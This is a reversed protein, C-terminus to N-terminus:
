RMLLSVGLTSEVRTIPMFYDNSGGRAVSIGFAKTGNSWGGGSDGPVVTTRDTRALGGLIRGNSTVNTNIAEIKHFCYRSNSATGYVCVSKGVMSSESQKSEVWRFSNSSSYYFNAIEQGDTTHYMADGSSGFVQKRFTTSHTSGAAAGRRIIKNPKVNVQCHAASVIGNGNPGSVTWGTTCSTGSDGAHSQGGHASVLEAIPGDARIIKLEIDDESVQTALSQVQLGPESLRAMLAQSLDFTNLAVTSGDNPVQVEAIIKQEPQGYFTVHNDYGLDKLAQTAVEARIYNEELTLEGGGTILLTDTTLLPSEAIALDAPIEDVFQIHGKMEGDMYLRSIQDPYTELVRSAYVDFAEQFALEQKVSELSRGTQTAILNADMEFAEESSQVPVGDIIEPAETNTIDSCSAILTVFIFLLLSTKLYRYASKM